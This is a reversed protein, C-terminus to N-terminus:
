VTLKPFAVEFRAGGETRNRVRVTGGQAGVLAQALSLGIGFGEPLASAEESPTATVQRGRYFREFVHPLDEDAIGCGTDSVVFRTALADETVQVTVSGGVPTHELCNKVINELAEATWRADGTFTAGEDGEIHLTVGHLNFAMELPKTARQALAHADVDRAEMSLAGADIKAMRLLSAMLWSLRDLLAEAERALQKRAAPNETRELRPLMLSLATLPTRIQHSIDAMADSLLVKEQELQDATRVLRVVMKSLENRLVEVDGERCTSFSLQRGSHLVEDVESALCGIERYRRASVVAFVAMAGVGGALCGAGGVTRAVAALVVVALGMVALQRWFAGNRAAARM